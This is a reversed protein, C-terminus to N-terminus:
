HASAWRLALLIIFFGGFHVCIILWEVMETSEHNEGASVTKFSISKIAIKKVSLSSM